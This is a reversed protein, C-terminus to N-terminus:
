CYNIGGCQSLLIVTLYKAILYAYICGNVLCITQLSDLAVLALM